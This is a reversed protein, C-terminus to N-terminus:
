GIPAEGQIAAVEAVHQQRQLMVKGTIVNVQQQQRILLLTLRRQCAQQATAGNIGQDDAVSRWFVTPKM